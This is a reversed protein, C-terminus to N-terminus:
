FMQTTKLRSPQRRNKPGPVRNKIVNTDLLRIPRRGKRKPNMPRQKKLPRSPTRRATMSQIPSSSFDSIKVEGQPKNKKSRKYLVILVTATMATGAIAAGTLSKWSRKVFPQFRNQVTDKLRKLSEKGATTIKRVTLNESLSIGRSQFPNPFGRRAASVTPTM